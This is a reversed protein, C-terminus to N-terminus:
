DVADVLVDCTESVTARDAIEVDIVLQGITVAFEELAHSDVLQVQTDFTVLHPGIRELWNQGLQETRTCRRILRRRRRTIRARAPSLALRTARPKGSSPIM